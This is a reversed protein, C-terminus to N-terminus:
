KFYAYFLLNGSLYRPINILFSLIRITIASSSCFIQSINFRRIRKSSRPSSNIPITELPSSRLFTITFSFGSITIVSIWIGTM